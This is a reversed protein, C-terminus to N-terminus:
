SSRLDSHKTVLRAIKVHPASCPTTEAHLEELGEDKHLHTFYYTFTEVQEPLRLKRGPGPGPGLGLHPITRSNM